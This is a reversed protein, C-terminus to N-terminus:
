DCVVVLREFEGLPLPISPIRSFPSRDCAGSGPVMANSPEPNRRTPPNKRLFNLAYAANTYSHLRRDQKEEGCPDRSLALRPPPLTGCVAVDPWNELGEWSFEATQKNRVNGKTRMTPDCNDASM